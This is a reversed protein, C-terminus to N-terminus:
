HLNRCSPTGDQGTIIKDNDPYSFRSIEQHRLVLTVFHRHSLHCLMLALDGGAVIIEKSGGNKKKWREVIVCNM